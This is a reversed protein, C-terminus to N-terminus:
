DATQKIKSFDFGQDINGFANVAIDLKEEFKTGSYAIQMLLKEMATQRKKYTHYVASFFGFFSILAIQLGPIQVSEISELIPLIISSLGVLVALVFASKNLLAYSHAKITLGFGLEYLKNADSTNLESKLNYLYRYSVLYQPNNLGMEKIKRNLRSSKKNNNTELM